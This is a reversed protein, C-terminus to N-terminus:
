TQLFYTIQTIILNRSRYGPQNQCSCLQNFLFSKVRKVFLDIATLIREAINDSVTLVSKISTNPPEFNGWLVVNCNNCGTNDNGSSTIGQVLEMKKKALTM